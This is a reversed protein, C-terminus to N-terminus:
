LKASQSPKFSYYRRWRSDISLLYYTNERIESLSDTTSWDNQGYRRKKEELRRNVEAEDLLIRENLINEVNCKEKMRELQEPDRGRMMCITASVGTGYGFLM